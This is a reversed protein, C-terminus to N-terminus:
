RTFPSSIARSICGNLLLRKDMRVIVKDERRNEIKKAVRMVHWAKVAQKSDACTNTSRPAVFGFKAYFSAVDQKSASGQEAQRLEGRTSGSLLADLMAYLM